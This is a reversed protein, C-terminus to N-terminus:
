SQPSYGPPRRGLYELEQDTIRTFVLGGCPAKLMLGREDVNWVSMKESSDVVDQVEFVESSDAFRVRDGVEPSVNTGPYFRETPKM